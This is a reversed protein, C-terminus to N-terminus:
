AAVGPCIGGERPTRPVAVEPCNDGKV